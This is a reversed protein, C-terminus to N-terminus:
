TEHARLHTYSVTIISIFSFASSVLQVITQELMNQINDVDNTFRSMIEGHTKSDFYKLPLTQLHDFLDKRIINTTKYSLKVMIKSQIFTFLSAGVYFATVIALNIMLQKVGVTAFNGARISDAVDNLIPKLWYSAGTSCVTSLILMLFVIILLLKSKGMYKLIRTFTQKAQKPKQGPKGRGPPGMPPM